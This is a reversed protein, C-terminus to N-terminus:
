KSRQQRCRILLVTYDYGGPMTIIDTSIVGPLVLSYVLLSVEGESKITKCKRKIIFLLEAMQWSHDPM